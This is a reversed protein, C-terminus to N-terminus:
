TRGAPERGHQTGTVHKWGRETLFRHDGSALLERATRSSSGCAPKITSWHDLVAHAVYRRYRGRRERASSRTASGCIRSPRTRGDAM